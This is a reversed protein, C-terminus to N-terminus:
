FINKSSAMFPKNKKVNNTIMAQKTIAPLPACGETLPNPTVEMLVSSRDPNLLTGAWDDLKPISNWIVIPMDSEEIAKDAPPFIRM